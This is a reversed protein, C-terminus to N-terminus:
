FAPPSLRRYSNLFVNLRDALKRSRIRDAEVLRLLYDRGGPEKDIEALSKGKAPGFPMKYASAVKFNWSM